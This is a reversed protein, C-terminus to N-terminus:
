KLQTQRAQWRWKAGTRANWHAEPTNFHTRLPLERGTFSDHQGSDEKGDRASSRGGTQEATSGPQTTMPCGGSSASASMSPTRSHLGAPLGVCRMISWQTVSHMNCYLSLGSFCLRDGRTNVRVELCLQGNAELAAECEGLFELM